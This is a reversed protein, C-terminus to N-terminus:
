DRGELKKGTVIYFVAGWMPGGTVISLILDFPYTINLAGWLRYNGTSMNFVVNWLETFMEFGKIWDGFIMTSSFGESDANDISSQFPVRDLAGETDLNGTNIPIDFFDAVASTSAMSLNIAVMLVLISWAKM